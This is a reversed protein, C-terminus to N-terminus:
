TVVVCDHIPLTFHFTTGTGAAPDAWIKGGHSEVITRCISLGVGMGMGGKTSVFPEFLRSAVEPAIGPGSDSISVITVGNAAMGTSVRIAAAKSGDVVELADMANRVLNVIVQEIQVRHVLINIGPDCHDVSTIVGTERTGLMALACAEDVLLPLSEARKVDDGGSVFQLM